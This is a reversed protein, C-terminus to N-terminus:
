IPAMILYTSPHRIHIFNDKKCMLILSSVRVVLMHGQRVRNSVCGSAIERSMGEVDSMGMIEICYLNGTTSCPAIAINNIFFPSADATITIAKDAGLSAIVKTATSNTTTDTSATATGILLNTTHM